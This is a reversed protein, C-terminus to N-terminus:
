RGIPRGSRRGILLLAAGAVVLGGGLVLVGASLDSGVSPLTGSGTSLGGNAGDGSGSGPGGGGEEGCDVTVRRDVVVRDNYGAQIRVTRGDYPSLDVVITTTDGGFLPASRQAPRDDVRIFFRVTSTPEGTNSLTVTAGPPPCVSGAVRAAPTPVPAACQPTVEYTAVAVGDVLVTATVTEDEWRSADATRTETTGPAVVVTSGVPRGNVQLDVSVPALGNNTASLQAQATDGACGFAASVLVAPAPGPACDATVVAGARVRVEPLVELVAVTDEPVGTLMVTERDGPAVPGVTQVDVGDVRITFTAPATAAPSNHVRVTVTPTTGSCEADGIRAGPLPGPDPPMECGNRLIARGKATWNLGDPLGPTIPPIIDGWVDVDPGFIPGTHSAHGEVVSSEAVAQQNYPNTRSNTRHCITVTEEPAADAPAPLAVLYAAAAALALLARTLTRSPTAMDVIPVRGGTSPM